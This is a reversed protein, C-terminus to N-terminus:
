PIALRSYDVPMIEGRYAGSYLCIIFQRCARTM